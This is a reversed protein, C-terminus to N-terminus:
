KKGGELRHFIYTSLRPAFHGVFDGTDLLRGNIMEAFLSRDAVDFEINDIRSQPSSALTWFLLQIGEYDQETCERVRDLSQGQELDDYHNERGILISELNTESVVMDFLKAKQLITLYKCAGLYLSSLRKNSRLFDLFLDFNDDAILYHHHDHLFLQLLNCNPNMKLFSTFAAPTTQDRLWLKQINNPLMIGQASVLSTQISFISPKALISALLENGVGFPTHIVTLHDLMKVYDIFGSNFLDQLAQQSYFKSPLTSLKLRKVHRLKLLGRLFPGLYGLHLRKIKFTDLHTNGKELIDFVGEFFKTSMHMHHQSPITLDSQQSSLISLFGLRKLNPANHELLDLISNYLSDVNYIFMITISTLHRIPLDQAPYHRAITSQLYVTHISQRESILRFVSQIMRDNDYEHSPLQYLALLNFRSMVEKFMEDPLSSNTIMDKLHNLGALIGTSYRYPFFPSNYHDRIDSKSLLSGVFITRQTLSHKAFLKSVLSLSLKWKPCAFYDVM